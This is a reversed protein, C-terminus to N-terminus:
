LRTLRGTEIKGEAEVRYVYTGASLGDLSVEIEQLGVSHHDHVLRGMMDYVSVRVNGTMPTSLRVNVSGRSPNPYLDVTLESVPDAPPDSGVVMGCPYDGCFDNYWEAMEAAPVPNKMWRILGQMTIAWVNEEALVDKLFQRVSQRRDAELLQSAHLYMNVPARNGHYRQQFNWWLMDHLEQGHLVPGGSMPAGPDFAGYYVSDPPANQGRPDVYFYLPVNWLGPVGMTPCNNNTFFGCSIPTGHDLTHPWVYNDPGDSMSYGWLPQEFLSADYQYGRSQLAEYMADNTVVWPARFGTLHESPIGASNILFNELAQLESDWLDFDAGSPVAHTFTHSAFEHGSHYLTNILEASSPAGQGEWCNIANVFFTAPIPRGDPNFLGVHVDEVYQHTNLDVCDDYTVLVFQPLEDPTYSRGPAGPPTVSACLCDPPQCEAPNCSYDPAGNVRLDFPLPQPM